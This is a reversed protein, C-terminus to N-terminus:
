KCEKGRLFINEDIEKGCHGCYMAVERGAIPEASGKSVKAKRYDPEGKVVPSTITCLGPYFVSKITKHCHECRPSGKKSVPYSQGSGISHGMRIKLEALAEKMEKNSM